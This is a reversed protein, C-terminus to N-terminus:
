GTPTGNTANPAKRERMAMYTVAAFITFGGVWTWLDPVEDFAFYAIISAWILRTFDFPLVATADAERFAQAMSLHGITGVIGIWLMWLFQEPTPWTWFFLAAIFTPPVLFIGMYVTLTLSTETRSLSKIVVMAGAWLASAAIVLVPGLDLPIYGPRIIVLAGAFGVMLAIWRRMRMAEGLFLVAGLSAFLPAVFNLAVVQALPTMSLAMFFGLMAVSQIVGRTFHLGLRKTKFPKLGYRFFFPALAVLGFVNRFFAVEFPHIGLSVQRISAHMASFALTSLLVLAAGRVEAPARDYLDVASTKLNPM